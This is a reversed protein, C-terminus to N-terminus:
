KHSAKTHDKVRDGQPVQKPAPRQAPLKNRDQKYVVGDGRVRVTAGTAEGRSNYVAAKKPPM